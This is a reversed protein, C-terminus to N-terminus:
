GIEGDDSRRRQKLMSYKRLETLGGRRFSSTCNFQRKKRIAGSDYTKRVKGAVSKPPDLISVDVIKQLDSVQEWTLKPLHLQRPSSKNNKQLDTLSGGIEFQNGLYFSMPVSVFRARPQLEKM